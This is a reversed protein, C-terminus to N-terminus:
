NVNYRKQPYKSLLFDGRRDCCAKKQSESLGFLIKEALKKRKAKQEKSFERAVRANKNETVNTINEKHKM